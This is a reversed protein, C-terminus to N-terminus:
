TVQQVVDITQSHSDSALLCQGESVSLSVEWQRDIHQSMDQMATPDMQFVSVNKYQAIKDKNKSWWVQSDGAYGYVLVQKASHSAKKLKDMSPCGLEIWLEVDGTLDKQWLAPEDAVSLGRTFELDEVTNLGYALIRALLRIHNESPHLALQLSLDTYVHKDMDALQLKVKYITAKLAM